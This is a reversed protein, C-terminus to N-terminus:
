ETSNSCCVVFIEFLIQRCLAQHFRCTSTCTCLVVHVVQGGLGILHTADVMDMHSYSGCAEGLGIMAYCRGHQTADDM